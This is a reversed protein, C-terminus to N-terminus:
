RLRFQVSWAMRVHVPRGARTAPAFRFQRAARLAAEDLGHGVGRTVRAQEVTGSPDVVLELHVDGEVGDSRAADPYAPAPGSALRAPADVSQAPFVTEDDHSSTTGTGTGSPSVVGHVGEAGAGSAMTFLPPDGDAITARPAAQPADVASPAHPLAVPLHVLEPDHPTADHGAPVPYPHTHAPWTASRPTAAVTPEPVPTDPLSSVETLVEVGVTEDSSARSPSAHAMPPLLVAAHVAASCGLAAVRAAISTLRLV